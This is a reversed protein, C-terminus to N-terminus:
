GQWASYALETTTATELLIPSTSGPRASSVVFAIETRNQGATFAARYIGSTWSAPVALTFASKWGAGQEPANPPTPQPDVHGSGTSVVPAARSVRAIEVSFDAPADSNLHFDIQQGPLVSTTSTYGEFAM